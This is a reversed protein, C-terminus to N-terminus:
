REHGHEDREEHGDVRHVPPDRRNVWRGETADVRELLEGDNSHGNGGGDREEHLSAAAPLQM